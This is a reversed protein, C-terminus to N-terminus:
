FIICVGFTTAITSNRSGPCNQQTGRANRNFDGDKRRETRKHQILAGQMSFLNSLEDRNLNPFANRLIDM